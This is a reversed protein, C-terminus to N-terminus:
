AGKSKRLEDNPQLHIPDPSRSGEKGMSIAGSLTAGEEVLLIPTTIDGQVRGTKYIEVRSRAKVNGQLSGRIVCIGVDVDAHIDGSQEITLSGSESVLKGTVKGDVQLAEAFMVDGSVEVGRSIRGPGSDEGNSKFQKMEGETEKQTDVDKQRQSDKQKLSDKQRRLFSM